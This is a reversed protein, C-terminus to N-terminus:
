IGLALKSDNETRNKKQSINCRTRKYSKSDHQALGADIRNWGIPRLLNSMYMM